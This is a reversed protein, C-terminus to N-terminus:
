KRKELDAAHEDALTVADGARPALFHRQNQPDRRDIVRTGKAVQLRVQDETLEVNYEAKEVVFAEFTKVKDDLVTIDFGCTPMVIDGPYTTLGGWVMYTTTPIGFIGQTMVKSREDFSVFFPYNETRGIKVTGPSASPIVKWTDDLEGLNVRLLGVSRISRQARQETSEIEAQKRGNDEWYYTRHDDHTAVDRVYGSSALKRQNRISEGQQVLVLESWPQTGILESVIEKFRERQAAEDEGALAQRLKVIAADVKPGSIAARAGGNLYKCVVRATKIEHAQTRLAVDIAELLERDGEEAWATSGSIAVTLWVVVLWHQRRRVLEAGEGYQM